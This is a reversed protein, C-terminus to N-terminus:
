VFWLVGCSHLRCAGVFLALTRVFARPVLWLSGHGSCGHCAHSTALVTAALTAVLALIRWIPAPWPWAHSRVHAHPAQRMTCASARLLVFSLPPPFPVKASVFAGGRVATVVRGHRKRICLRMAVAPSLPPLSGENLRLDRGRRRGTVFRLTAFPEGLFSAVRVVLRPMPMYPWVTARSSRCSPCAHPPHRWLRLPSVRRQWSGKSSLGRGVPSPLCFTTGLSHCPALKRRGLGPKRKHRM